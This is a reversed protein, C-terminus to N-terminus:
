LIIAKKWYFFAEKGKGVWQKVIRIIADNALPETEDLVSQKTIQGYLINWYISTYQLKPRVDDRERKRSVEVM